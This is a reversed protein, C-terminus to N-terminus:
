LTNQGVFMTAIAIRRSECTVGARAASCRRGLQAYINSVDQAKSIPDIYEYVGQDNTM